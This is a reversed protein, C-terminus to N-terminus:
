VANRETASTRGGPRNTLLERIPAELAEAVVGHGEENWHMEDPLHLGPDRSELYDDLFVVHIGEGALHDRFQTGGYIDDVLVVLFQAGDSEVELRLEEILRVTTFEAETRPFSQRHEVPTEPGPRALASEVRGQERIRNLRTLLHSRMATGVILREYWPTEPVPQNSLAIRSRDRLFVPKGYIVYAVPSVNMAFDNSAVVLAVVDPEYNRGHRQYLLLEQDTSYGSVGLNIFGIESGLARDLQRIFTDDEQVGFGWTFSDGLVVVRQRAMPKELSLEPGRFGFSNTRIAVDFGFSKFRGTYGPKHAWGYVPDYQWFEGLRGTRPAWEPFLMRSLLEATPVAVLVSCDTLVLLPWVGNPKAM